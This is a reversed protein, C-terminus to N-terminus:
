CTLQLITGPVAGAPVVVMLQQGSPAQVTLQQGPVANPPVTVQMAPQIVGAPAVQAAQAPVPAPVLAPATAPDEDVVSAGPGCKSPWVSSCCCIPTFPYLVASAQWLAGFLYIALFPLVPAGKIMLKIAFYLPVALVPYFIVGCAKAAFSEKATDDGRADAALMCFRPDAPHYLVDAEGQETLKNYLQEPIETGPRKVWRQGALFSFDVQYSMGEGSPNEATKKLIRGIVRQGKALLTSAQRRRRYVIAFGNQMLVAFLALIITTNTQANKSMPEDEPTV